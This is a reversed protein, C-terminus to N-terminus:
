YIAFLINSHSSAKLLQTIVLSLQADTDWYTLHLIINFKSHQLSLM